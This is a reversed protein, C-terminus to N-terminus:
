AAAELLAMGMKTHRLPKHRTKSASWMASVDGVYWRAARGGM